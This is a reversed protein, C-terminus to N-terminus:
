PEKSQLYINVKKFAEWAKRKNGLKEYCRGIMLQADGKKKSKEFTLVKNFEELAETYRKSAYKIGGIWYHCDAAIEGTAGEDLMKRFPTAADEYITMPLETNVTATLSDAGQKKTSLEVEADQLKAALRQADNEPKPNTKPVLKMLVIELTDIIDGQLSRHVTVSLPGNKQIARIFQLQTPDATLLYDGPAVNMAYFGGDAFTRLTDGFGGETSQMIMRIGSLPTRVGENDFYVTGSITGGRYFPIEIRKIENPDVVFSFKDDMPVLNPDIQQRDVELNHRFYSQLQSVHIISDRGVEIKGTGDVKVGRAPILDDGADYVGNGNNDVFLVVDLGGKDIEERNSLYLKGNNQDVAMSGYVSHRSTSSGNTQDLVSSTRTFNLDMILGAELSTSKLAVNREFGLNFQFIQMFTKSFQLTADQLTKGRVDVTAQGRLLLAQLFGPLFSGRPLMYMATTTLFGSGSFKLPHVAAGNMVESYSLLLQMDSLRTSLDFRPALSKGSASATYEESLRFGTASSIFTLPLYVALNGNQQPTTGVLTDTLKNDAYQVFVGANSAFLANADAHYYAGPAADVNVIYQSFLRSSFGGDFVPKRLTGKSAGEFGGNLTLWDSAGYLLNTNGFYIDNAQPANNTEKGAQLNYSLVGEPVFTFPIQIQKENVNIDGYKSFTKVAVRMTGYTLPFQFRYYGAADTRQFDILRDDLYLEVDSEPETYGDVVYNNFMVRPEVPENSVGVGTIRPVFDSGTTIQGAKLSSFYDDERVVYRWRVDSFSPAQGQAGVLSGQIDGGAVEGGGTLTYGTGQSSLGNFSATVNYDMVAGGLLSRQLDYRLPYKVPVGPGGRMETRELAAKRHVLAPLEKKTEAVILLRNFNVTCAIGFIEEFKETSLYIDVEGKFMEKPPLEYRKDALTIIQKVPDITFPYDSSLYTGKIVNQGEITYYMEFINFLEMVPLYIRDNKVAVSINYSGLEKLTFGFIVEEYQSSQQALSWSPVLLCSLLSITLALLLTRM